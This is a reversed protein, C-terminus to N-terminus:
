PYNRRARNVNGRLNPQNEAALILMIKAAPQGHQLLNAMRQMDRKAHKFFRKYGACLYNLGLEGEPTQSFRNKPCGGYCAFLVECNQCFAPLTKHKAAGFQRQKPSTALDIMPDQQINGLYYEPEVFHDCAYLDGNHELALASGCTPAFICIGPPQQLWAGLTTDFMRVFIHGVDQRVWEDFITNLFRGYKRPNVSRKSVQSGSQSLREVIPIFQIFQAKLNDRLFHYLEIPSDQNAKHVACLVNSDVGYKQLLQWGRIVQDFSGEDGKNLRYANHMERTGDISVGILFNHKKFFQCWEENLSVGNTQLTNHIQIGPRAYKQQYHIAREFFDLEMLTPEGGQWSFTVEPVQQAAIYQRTYTELLTDTMRFHSDPYLAEKSLYFCYQCNLNCIPGRPKAMIHFATPANM